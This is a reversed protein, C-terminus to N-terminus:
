LRIVLLLIRQPKANRVGYKRILRKTDESLRPSLFYPTNEFEKKSYAPFKGKEKALLASTQWTLNEKTANLNTVFTVADKSNYPIRLMALASGLGNLGMGFQRLNKVAWDYNPLSNFTLDNVNDLMRTFIKIDEKYQEWDFYTSGHNSKIIYQTLNISGLLCVTSLSALGPIEGCNGTIASSTRFCHTDDFVSIDWVDEKIDTLEVSKIRVIGRDKPMLKKCSEKIINIKNQKEKHHLNFDEGFDFINCGNVSIDIRKYDKNYEKKNPFSSGKFSGKVKVSKVGLFGLLDQYDSAIKEKSTTLILKRNKDYVSFKSVSGDSSILGDLFGLIFKTNSKWILSPFGEEKKSVGYFKKMKNHFDLSSVQFTYTGNKQLNLTSKDKKLSNVTKLIQEGIYKEDKNFIFGYEHRGKDQYIWGDGYLWGLMLGEEYSIDKNFDLDCRDGNFFPLVDGKKLNKTEQKAWGGAKTLVPWKHEATCYTDNGNSLVIKYLSKLKGSLFCKANSIEKNLNQIKFRKDQLEEIPIIGKDTYVRTGKRLSPNTCNAKGLYAVPNNDHMNDIYIIGPEARNYTSEMILDYLERAKVKKYKKGGFHLVYKENKEVAEMFANDVAVSMNFKTLVGPVQKARVFEEIDPHWISLCGMQAGKRTMSKVIGKIKEFESESGLYNKIKDEYGDDTGKVICESVSDWGKMYSVVGPHKIGTGKIVAGRPRIFDFNIGYGGESALTKAQEMITIFINVLDDPSDKSAINVKYKINKVESKREYSIKAGSVPGTIYCNILTAKEFSTGANATIRGGTTCKLGIPKDGVFKVITKLFKDAWYKRKKSKEASAIFNAVRRFTDLPKENGFRYKNAWNEYALETTFM